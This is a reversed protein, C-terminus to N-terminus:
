IGVMNIWINEPKNIMLPFVLSKCGSDTCYEEIYQQPKSEWVLSLSIFIVNFLFAILIANRIPHKLLTDIM